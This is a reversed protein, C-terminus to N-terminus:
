KYAALVDVERLVVQLEFAPEPLGFPVLATDM